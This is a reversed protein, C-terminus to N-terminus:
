SVYTCRTNRMALLCVWVELRSGSHHALRHTLTEVRKSLGRVKLKSQDGLYRTDSGKAQAELSGMGRYRKLRQGDQGVCFLVM